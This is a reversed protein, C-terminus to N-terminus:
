FYCRWDGYRSYYKCFSSDGCKWWYWLMPMFFSLAVVRGLAGEYTKLVTGTLFDLVLLFMLWGARRRLLDFSTSSGYSVEEGEEIHMKGLEYIEKTNDQQIMDVIDDFVVFLEAVKDGETNPSLKINDVNTMIETILTTPRSTILDQLDVAGLLGKQPDFVYSSYIHESDGAKLDEQLKILAEKANMEPSLEVVETTMLSGATGEAYHMLSKVDEVEEKEMLSFFKTMEEPSLEQFLDVREDPAMENLIESVEVNQLNDLLFTQEEFPLSEFVELTIEKTLLRFIFIKEKNEFENFTEAIDISHIKALLEKLELFRRSNLLEKIEPLLLDITNLNEKIPPM